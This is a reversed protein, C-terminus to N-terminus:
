DSYKLSGNGYWKIPVNSLVSPKYRNAAQIADTLSIDGNGDDMWVTWFKLTWDLHSNDFQFVVPGSWGMFARKHLGAENLPAGSIHKFIGFAEPFDGLGTNCGDLFVFNFPKHTVLTPKGNVSPIIYNGLLTGVTKAGIVATQLGIANGNTNGHGYFYFATALPDVFMNTLGYVDSSTLVQKVDGSYVGRNNGVVGDAAGILGAIQNCDSVVTNGFVGPINV